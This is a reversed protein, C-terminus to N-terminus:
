KKIKRKLNFIRKLCNRIKQWITLSVPTNNDISIDDRVPQINQKQSKRMIHNYSLAQLQKPDMM